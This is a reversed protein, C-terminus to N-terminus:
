VDRLKNLHLKTLHIEVYSYSYHIFLAKAAVVRQVRVLEGILELCFFLFDRQLTERYESRDRRYINIGATDMGCSYKIEVKGRFNTRNIQLDKRGEAGAGNCDRRSAKNLNDGPGTERGM